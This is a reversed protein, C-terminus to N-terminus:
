LVAVVVYELQVKSSFHSSHKPNSFAIIQEKIFLPWSRHGREFLLMQGAAVSFTLSSTQM